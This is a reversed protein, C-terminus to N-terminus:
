GIMVQLLEETKLYKKATEQLIDANVAKIRAIMGEYFDYGLGAHHITKFKDMLHFSTNIESLFHGIMYNKATELELSPVLETQLKKIEAHIENITAQAHEKKVDTGIILYSANQLHLLSSHIGYTYGKEERINKMLRSGFYGGFLENLVSLAMYDPHSRNIIPLGVRISTQVAQAKEQYYASPTFTNEYNVSTKLESIAIQSLYQDILQFDEESVKGCLFVEPSVRYGETFYALLDERHYSDVIEESIFRGYPHDTGFFKERFVKGAETSNKERNIRIEQKKISKLTELEAEPFNSENIMEVFLPLLKDLHKNLVYLSVTTNDLGPITELYAGYHDLIDNIETSTRKNTGETLMKTVFFAIGQKSEYWAGSKFSIEVKIISQDGQNLVYAPTGNKLYRPSIHQLAVKDPLQFPPAQTRDLVM